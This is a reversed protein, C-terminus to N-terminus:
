KLFELYFGPFDSYIVHDSYWTSKKLDQVQITTEEGGPKLGPGSSKESTVKESTPCWQCLWMCHSLRQCLHRQNRHNVGRYQCCSITPLHLNAAAQM